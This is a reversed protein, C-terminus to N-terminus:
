EEMCGRGEGVVVGGMKVGSGGAWWVLEGCEWGWRWWLGCGRGVGGVGEGRRGGPWGCGEVM